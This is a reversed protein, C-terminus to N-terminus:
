PPTSVRSTQNCLCPGSVISRYMIAYYQYRHTDELLCGPLFHIWRKTSFFGATFHKLGYAQYDILWIRTAHLFIM